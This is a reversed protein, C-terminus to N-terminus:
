FLSSFVSSTPIVIIAGVIRFSFIIKNFIFERYMCQTFLVRKVVFCIIPIFTYFAEDLLVVVFTYGDSSYQTSYAMVSGYRTHVVISNTSALSNRYCQTCLKLAIEERDIEILSGGTHEESDVIILAAM